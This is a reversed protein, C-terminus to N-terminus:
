ETFPNQMDKDEIEIVWLDPDRDIARTIFADADKEEIIDEQLAAVWKMQDTMFDREQIILKVKGLLSNIKLMVIGSSHNGKQIFHYFRGQATLTQLQADVYLATPLRDSM